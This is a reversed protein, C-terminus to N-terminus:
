DGRRLKNLKRAMRVNKFRKRHTVEEGLWEPIAFSQDEHQLEIEAVILGHFEPDLFEDVHWRDRGVLMDYRTKLLPPFGTDLFLEYFSRSVRTELEICKRETLKRKMTFIYTEGHDYDDILRVRQTWDGTDPLYVQTINIRNIANAKALIKEIPRTVLFKREIEFM